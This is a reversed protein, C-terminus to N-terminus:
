KVITRPRFETVVGEVLKSRSTMQTETVVDPQREHLVSKWKRVDTVSQQSKRFERYLRNVLPDGPRVHCELRVNYKAKWDSWIREREEDALPAEWSIDTSLSNSGDAKPSEELGAEQYRYLRRELRQPTQRAAFNKTTEDAQWIIDLLVVHDDETYSSAFDRLTVFEQVEMLNKILCPAVKAVKFCSELGGDAEQM